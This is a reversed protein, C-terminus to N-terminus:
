WFVRKQALRARYSEPDVGHLAEKSYQTQKRKDRVRWECAFWLVTGLVALCLLVEIGLVM